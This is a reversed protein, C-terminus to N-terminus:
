YIFHICVEEKIDELDVEFEINSDLNIEPEKQIEKSFNEDKQIDM